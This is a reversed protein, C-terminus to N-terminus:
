SDDDAFDALHSRTVRGDATAQWVRGSNADLCTLPGGRSADTDLCVAYGRNMVRGSKQPTHGCVIPKGSGHPAIRDCREWRLMYAPQEAM